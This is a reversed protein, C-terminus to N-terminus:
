KIVVMRRLNSNELLSITLVTPNSQSGDEHKTITKGDSNVTYYIYNVDDAWTNVLTALLLALSLISRKAM